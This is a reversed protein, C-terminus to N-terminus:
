GNVGDKSFAVEGFCTKCCCCIVLFKRHCPLMPAPLPPPLASRRGKARAPGRAGGGRKCMDGGGGGCCGPQKHALQQPLFPAPQVHGPWTVRAARTLRWGACVCQTRDELPWLFSLCSPSPTFPCQAGKKDGPGTDQKQGKQREQVVMPAIALLSVHNGLCMRGLLGKTTVCGLVRVGLIVVKGQGGQGDAKAWLVSDGV